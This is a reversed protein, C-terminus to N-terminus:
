CTRARRHLRRTRQVPVRLDRRVRAPRRLTGGADCGDRRRSGRRVVKGAAERAIQINTRLRDTAFAGPLLNNITVNHACSAQARARRRLRDPGLARRQLPRPRRDAGERGSSTINVIRGFRREIMTDVTAKILEIPTLMNADLARLWADRDWDRFDGPPPGGANNVLIDPQPCAALAQARGSATTIDCAVWAVNRGALRVSRRPRAARRGGRHARLDHRRCRRPRAGRRMGSRARQQSRLGARASRHPRSGDGSTLGRAAGRRPAGPRRHRDRRRVARRHRLLSRAGPRSRADIGFWVPGLMAGLDLGSYVFGYVRGAAGKRRQTAARDPRAVAGDRRHVARDVVFVPVIWPMPVANAAILALLAAGLLLGTAAVRDHRLTRVALFGGIVIGATGGLLYATVASTAVVLPM